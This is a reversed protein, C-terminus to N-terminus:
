DRAYDVQDISVTAHHRALTGPVCTFGAEGIKLFVDFFVHSISSRPLDFNWKFPKVEWNEAKARDAWRQCEGIMYNAAHRTTCRKRVLFDSAQWKSLAKRSSGGM